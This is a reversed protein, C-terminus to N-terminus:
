FYYYLTPYPAGKKVRNKMENLFRAPRRGYVFIFLFLGNVALSKLLLDNIPENIRTDLTFALPVIFKENGVISLLLNILTTEFLMKVNKPGFVIILKLAQVLSSSGSVLYKNKNSLM